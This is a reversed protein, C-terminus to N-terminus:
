VFVKGALVLRDVISEPTTKTALERKFSNPSPMM